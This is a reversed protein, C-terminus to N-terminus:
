DYVGSGGARAPSGAAHSVLTTTGLLRDHLFVDDGQNDDEQGPVLNEAESVFAVYRGDASLAPRGSAGFSDAAAGTGSVLELTAAGALGALGPAALMFLFTGVVGTRNSCGRLM